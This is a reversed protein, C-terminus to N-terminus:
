RESFTREDEADSFGFSRLCDAEGVGLYSVESNCSLRQHPDSLM